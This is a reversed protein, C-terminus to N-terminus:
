THARDASTFLVSPSRPVVARTGGGVQSELRDTEEQAAQKAAALKEQTKKARELNDRAERLGDRLVAVQPM